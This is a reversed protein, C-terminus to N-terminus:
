FQYNIDIGVTRPRLQYARTFGLASLGTEVWTFEDSNTLNKVFIGVDFADINVGSKLNLQAYGGAEPQGAVPSIVSFYDSVYAYDVRAFSPNGALEFSYELGLSFNFDASGPLDDGDSGLNAADETLESTNYSAGLNVQLNEILKAQLELEIGQSESSGANFTYTAGCSATVGVPMGDWNIHYIAANVILRDNLFNQKLGLEFSESTDAEIDKPILLGDVVRDGDPDCAPVVVVQPRGLRFGEAWQGYLLLDDNPQYSLNFKYTQGNSEAKADEESFVFGLFSLTSNNEREFEFYRAGLTAKVTNTIDYTLESFIAKQEVPLEVQSRFAIEDSDGLSSDGSWRDALDQHNERDEYYLGALFQLPGDINSSFRLEQIVTDTSISSITSFPTNGNFVSGDQESRPESEIKSTSSLLQGWDLDYELVLNTIKVESQLSEYRDGNPGVQLRTQQFNNGTLYNVEPYGDQEIEQQLYMITAKFEDTPQWLATLRFGTYEDGGVDNRDQVFGGNPVTADIVADPQSAGVNDIYGSNDFRYAVARVALKDTILPVNLVGQIMTNNGGQEGTSSYQTALKGEVQNLNPASPIVRVTGAMSSAGYLTGQPGRLVEIREVDM